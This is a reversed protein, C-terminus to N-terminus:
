GDTNEQAAEQKAAAEVAERLATVLAAGLDGYREFVDAVSIGDDQAIQQVELLAEEAASAARFVFNAIVAGNPSADEHLLVVKGSACCAFNYPSKMSAAAELLDVATVPRGLASTVAALLAETPSLM